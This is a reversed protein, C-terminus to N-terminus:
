NKPDIVILLAVLASQSIKGLPEAQSPLQQNTLKTAEGYAM